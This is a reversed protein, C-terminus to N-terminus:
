PMNLARAASSEADGRTQWCRGRSAACCRAAQAEVVGSAARRRGGAQSAAGRAEVRKRAARAQEERPRAAQITLTATQESGEGCQADSKGAGEGDCIQQRGRIQSYQTPIGRQEDGRAREGTRKGKDVGGGSGQERDERENGGRSRLHVARADKPAHTALARSIRATTAKGENTTDQVQNNAQVLVATGGAAENAGSTAESEIGEVDEGALINWQIGSEDGRLGCTVAVM